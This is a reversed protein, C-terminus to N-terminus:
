EGFRNRDRGALPAENRGAEGDRDGAAVLALDTRAGAEREPVADADDVRGAGDVAVVAAFDADHEHIVTRLREDDLRERADSLEDDSRHRAGLEDDDLREGRGLAPAAAVPRRAHLGPEAVSFARRRCAAACSFNTARSGSPRASSTPKRLSSWTRGSSAAFFPRSRARCASPSRALRSSASTEGARSTARRASISLKSTRRACRAASPTPRKTRPKRASTAKM